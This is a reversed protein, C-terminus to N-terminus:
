EDCLERYLRIYDKFMANKDFSEARKRCEARSFPMEECLDRIRKVLSDVCNEQIIAGSNADISEPSGGTCYTIVPTGCALAELNVTPFNDEITPNILYDAASYIEALEYRDSTRSIWLVNPPLKGRTKEDMGGILVAYCIDDLAEAARILAEIGKRKEWQYAVGLLIKKDEPICYKERFMSETYTFADLDIGNHIVRVDYAGLFSSKVLESLWKSPTVITLDMDSFLAKKREYLEKSRDFVLSYKKRQPCNFCGSKWKDCRAADFYMCYGTFAWCDHFTWVLRASNSKLYSFLMGIDCNHGHLNHLHIVDPSIRNLQDILTRTMKRSNFGYNGLCKAKLANRKVERNEGYKLASLHDSFGNTYLIYNEINELNLLDAIEACIKGTSGKGCTSNIQVVKM